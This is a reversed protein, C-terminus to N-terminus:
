ILQMHAVSRAKSSSRDQQQVENGGRGRSNHLRIMAVLIDQKTMFSIM